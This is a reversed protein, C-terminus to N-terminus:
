WGTRLARPPVPESRECQGLIAIEQSDLPNLAHPRSVRVSECRGAVFAPAM